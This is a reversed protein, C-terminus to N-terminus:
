KEHYPSWRSRCEKGVRREESKMAQSFAVPFPELRLNGVGHTGGSVHIIFQAVKKADQGAGWSFKERAVRLMGGQNALTLISLSLIPVSCLHGVQPFAISALAGPPQHGSHRMLTPSPDPTAGPASVAVPAVRRSKTGGGTSFSPGSNGWSSIRSSMPLPPM